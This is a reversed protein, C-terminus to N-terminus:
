GDELHYLKVRAPCATDISLIKTPITPFYGNCDPISGSPPHM